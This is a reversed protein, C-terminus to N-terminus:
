KKLSDQSPEDRRHEYYHSFAEDFSNIEKGCYECCGNRQMANISNAELKTHWAKM